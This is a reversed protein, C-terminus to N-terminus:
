RVVNLQRFFELTDLVNEEKLINKTNVITTDIDEPVKGSLLNVFHSLFTTAYEGKGLTFQVILGEPVIEAAHIAAHDVTEVERHNLRISRFPRLTSFDLPFLGIDELDDSYPLWDNKDDSLFLPLTRPPKVGSMLYASLKRNYLLSALASAWLMVQEEVRALAGAFDTPNQALHSVIKIETPFILQFEKLRELVAQWDPALAIIERRLNLFYPIERLGPDSIIGYVAKQYDGKLISAAWKYNNLRPSGFRQLYYFNYFGNRKVEELANIAKEIKAHNDKDRGFRLLITFRNGKLAGKTLVGKGTRIDKLFFHPSSAAEVAAKPISRISIEQSTIADKDKIGAYQVKDRTTNLLKALEDVAEITSLGCKVLTAYVTDGPKDEIDLSQREITTQRGTETIEEVIFDSPLLKLYGGPLESKGPIYIGLAELTQSDDAWTTEPFLSPNKLKEAELKAREEAMLRMRDSEM